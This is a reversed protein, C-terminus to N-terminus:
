GERKKKGTGVWVGGASAMLEITDEPPAAGEGVIRLGPLVVRAAEDVWYPDDAYPRGLVAGRMSRSKLPIRGGRLVSIGQADLVSPDPNIAVMAVGPNLEAVEKWRSAASGVLVVYGGPGHLGVLATIADPELASATEAPSEVRSEQSEVGNGVDLIGDKLVFTRGCVPCGLQGSLVSREEIRDPLLVLLSEDHDSPCRLHDTLEIFM